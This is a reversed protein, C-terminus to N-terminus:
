LGALSIRGVGVESASAPLHRRLTTMIEARIDAPAVSQGDRNRRQMVLAAVGSVIPTAMSTGSSPGSLDARTLGPLPQGDADRKVPISSTINVGPAAIDPKSTQYATPGRSSFGAPLFTQKTIAGVTLAESAHGPCAIETDFSDGFGNNRLFEAREHENGAAVVALVGDSLVANNVATCLPCRGEPCSWGHGRDSWSPLHNFGVSMSLIDAERDLAADIGAVISTHAGSGLADLVKVNILTVGPAVGSYVTDKSAISGAVHTGHKGPISVAEGVTSVSDAVTLWPHLLDVGSDLVAVRIGTGDLTPHRMRALPLEIDGIADDMLTAYVKPDLEALQVGEQQLAEAVQQPLARAQLLNGSLLTECKLGANKRLREAVPGLQDAARQKYMKWGEGIEPMVRPITFFVPMVPTPAVEEAGSVDLTMRAMGTAATGRQLGQMAAALLPGVRNVLPRIASRVAPAVAAAVISPIGGTSARLVSETAAM